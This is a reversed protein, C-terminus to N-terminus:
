QLNDGSCAKAQELGTKGDWFRWTIRKLAKRADKKHNYDATDDPNCDALGIRSEPPAWFRDAFKM